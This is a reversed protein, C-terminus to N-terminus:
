TLALFCNSGQFPVMKLCHLTTLQNQLGIYYNHQHKSVAHKPCLLNLVTNEPRGPIWGPLCSVGGDVQTPLGCEGSMRRDTDKCVKPLICWRSRLLGCSRCSAPMLTSTEMLGWGQLFRVLVWCTVPFTHKCLHLGITRPCDSSFLM